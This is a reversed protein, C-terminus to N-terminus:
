KRSDLVLVGIATMVFAMGILHSRTIVEGLTLSSLLVSSVPVLATYVSAYMGSVHKIGTFWLIYAAATVFLGYYAIVLYGNISIETFRGQYTEYVGFPLFFIFVIIAIYASLQFTPIEATFRKRMILFLGEFIFAALVLLGGIISSQGAEGGSVSINIVIVGFTALVVASTKLLTLKEGLLLVSLILVIVPLTGTIIGSDVASVSKLGALLLVNFIFIDGAQLIVYFLNKGRLKIEKHRGLKMFVYLFLGGLFFRISLTIYQPMETAVVKGVTVTSGVIIMGLILSLHYIM